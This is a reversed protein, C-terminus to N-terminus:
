AIGELNLQFDVSLPVKRTEVDNINASVEYMGYTPPVLIVNDVGPKCFARFLLDIPEDSGNGLFLNSEPVGKIQTLKVKLRLTLPDPYRYYNGSIPSGFSYENADM